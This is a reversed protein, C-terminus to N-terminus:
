LFPNIHKDAHQGRKRILAAAPNSRMTRANVNFDITRLSLGCKAAGEIL